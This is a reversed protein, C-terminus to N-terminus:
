RENPDVEKCSLIRFNNAEQTFSVIDIYWNYIQSLVNNLCTHITTSTILIFIILIIHYCLLPRYSLRYLQVYIHYINDVNIVNYIHQMYYFSLVSGIYRQYQLCIHWYVHYVLVITHFTMTLGARDFLNAARKRRIEYKLM